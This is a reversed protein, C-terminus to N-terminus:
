GNRRTKTKDWVWFPYAYCQDRVMCEEPDDFAEVRWCSGFHDPDANDCNDCDRDKELPMQLADWFEKKSIYSRTV